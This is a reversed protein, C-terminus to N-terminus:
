DGPLAQALRWSNLRQNLRQCRFGRRDPVRVSGGSGGIQDSIPDFRKQGTMPEAPMAMCAKEEHKKEKKFSRDHQGAMNTREDSWNQGTMIPEAEKVPWIQGTMDFRVPTKVPWIQGAIKEPDIPDCIPVIQDPDLSM